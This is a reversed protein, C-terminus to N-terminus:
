AGARTLFLVRSVPACPLLTSHPPKERRSRYGGKTHIRRERERRGVKKIRPANDSPDTASEPMVIATADESRSSQQSMRHQRAIMKAAEDISAPTHKRLLALEDADDEISDVSGQFPTLLLHCSLTTCVDNVRAPAPLRPPPPPM